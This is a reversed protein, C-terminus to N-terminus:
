YLHMVCNFIYIYYINIKINIWVKKYQSNHKNVVFGGQYRILHQISWGRMLSLFLGVFIITHLAFIEQLQFYQWAKPFRPLLSFTKVEILWAFFSFRDWYIYLLRERGDTETWSRHKNSVPSFCITDHLLMRLM